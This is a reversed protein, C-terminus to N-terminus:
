FDVVEFQKRVVFYVSQDALHTGAAKMKREEFARMAALLRDENLGRYRCRGLHPGRSAPMAAMRQVVIFLVKAGHNAGSRRLARVTRLSSPARTTLM